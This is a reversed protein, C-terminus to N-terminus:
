TLITAFDAEAFVARGGRRDELVLAKAQGATAVGAQYEAAWLGAALLLEIAICGALRRSLRRPM